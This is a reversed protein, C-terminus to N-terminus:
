RGAVRRRTPRRAPVEGSGIAYSTVLHNWSCARCVEVVYVRLDAHHLSLAVLESQARTRGSSEGLEDGYVYTVAVLPRDTRCLDTRCLPCPRQTPEGHHRAARLLDPHADCVEQRSLVGRQLDALAARRALAYDIM